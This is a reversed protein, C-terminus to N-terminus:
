GVAHRVTNEVLEGVMGDKLMKLFRFLFLEDLSVLVVVFSLVSGSGAVTGIKRMKLLDFLFLEGSSVPVVAFTHM